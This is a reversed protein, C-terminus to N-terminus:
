LESAEIFVSPTENKPFQFRLIGCRETATMEAKIKSLKQTHLKVSYYYPRSTEGCHSFYYTRKLAKSNVKGIAPKLTVQGYDGMWIAPKHSARFGRMRTDFHNYLARGIRAKRTLPTWHTMGFPPTVFPTTRGYIWIGKTGILPNVHDSLSQARNKQFVFLLIFLAAVTKKM